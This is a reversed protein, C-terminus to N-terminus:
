RECSRELPRVSQAQLLVVRQAPGPPPEHRGRGRGPAIVLRGGPVRIGPEKLDSKRVLGVIEVERGDQRKVEALMPKRGSVQFRDAPVDPADDGLAKPERTSTLIRGKLCGTVVLQVSDKPPKSPQGAELGAWLAVVAMSSLVLSM